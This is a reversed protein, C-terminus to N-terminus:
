RRRMSSRESTGGDVSTSIKRRVHRCLLFFHWKYHGVVNIGAALPLARVGSPGFKIKLEEEASELLAQPCQVLFYFIRWFCIIGFYLLKIGIPGGLAKVLYVKPGLPTRASGKAAPM